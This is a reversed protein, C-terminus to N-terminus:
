GCVDQTDRWRDAKESDRKKPDPDGYTLPESPFPANLYDRDLDAKIKNFPKAGEGHLCYDRFADKREALVSTRPPKAPVYRAVTDDALCTCSLLVSIFLLLRLSVANM